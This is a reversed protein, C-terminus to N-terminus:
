DSEQPNKNMRNRAVIMILMALVLVIGAGAAVKGWPGAMLEAAPDTPAETSSAAASETSGASQAEAGAGGITFSTKGRTSHGDSSTIQFGVTYEDPVLRIDSPIDIKVNRGDVTPEGSFLVDGKSNSIALTNFGEKPEGSFELTISTPAQTLVEGDAPSGGVVADHASAITATVAVYCGLLIAALRRIINATSASVVM